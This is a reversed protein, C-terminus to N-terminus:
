RKMFYNNFCFFKKKLFSFNTFEGGYKESIQLNLGKWCTRGQVVTRGAENMLFLLAAVHIYGKPNLM